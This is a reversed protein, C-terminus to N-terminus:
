HINVPMLVTEERPILIQFTTNDQDDRWECASLYRWRVKRWPAAGSAYVLGDEEAALLYNARDVRRFAQAAPKPGALPAASNDELGSAVPAAVPRRLKAQWTVTVIALLALSAAIALPAWRFRLRRVVLAAVPPSVSELEQELRRTLRESAQFPRLRGLEAAIDDLPGSGPFSPPRPVGHAGVAALPSAARAVPDSEMDSNM